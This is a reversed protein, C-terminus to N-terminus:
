PRKDASTEIDARLAASRLDAAFGPETNEIRDAWALVEDATRPDAHQLSLQWRDLRRLGQILTATIGALWASASPIVVRTPRGFTMSSNSMTKVGILNM